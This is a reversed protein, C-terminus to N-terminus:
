TQNLYVNINACLFLVLVQFLQLFTFRLACCVLLITRSSLSCNWSKEERKRGEKSFSFSAQFSSRTKGTTVSEDGQGTDLWHPVPLLPLCGLPPPSLLQVTDKLRQWIRRALRLRRSGQTHACMVASPGTRHSRISKLAPNAGPFTHLLM